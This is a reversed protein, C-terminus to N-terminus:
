LIRFPGAPESHLWAWRAVTAATLPALSVTTQRRGWCWADALARRTAAAVADDLDEHPKYRLLPPVALVDELFGQCAAAYDRAKIGEPELGARRLEDAIDLAPGAADYMVRRPRWRDVLDVVRATLWGTGEPRDDPNAMEVRRVGAEDAWCVVVAADSRDVACDFGLTVEGATPLPQTDDGAAIWAPAPIVRAVTSVWRNGYARAFEDPGLLELASTM